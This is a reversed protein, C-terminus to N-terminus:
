KGCPWAHACWVCAAGWEARCVGAAGAAGWKARSMMVVRSGARDNGGQLRVECVEEEEDSDPEQFDNLQLYLDDGPEVVEDCWVVQRLPVLRSKGGAAAAGAKPGRKAGGTKPTAAAAAAAQQQQQQKSPTRLAAAAAAISASPAKKPPAAAV